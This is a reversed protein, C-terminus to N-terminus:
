LRVAPCIGKCLWVPVVARSPFWLWLKVEAEVFEVPLWACVKVEAAVFVAPFWLWLPEVDNSFECSCVTLPLLVKELSPEDNSVSLLVFECGREVIFSVPCLWEMGESPECEWESEPEVSAAPFWLWVKLPVVSVSPKCRCVKVVSSVPEPAPM